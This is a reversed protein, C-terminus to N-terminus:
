AADAVGEADVATTTPASPSGPVLDTANPVHLLEHWDLNALTDPFKEVLKDRMQAADHILWFNDELLESRVVDIDLGREQLQRRPSTQRKEVRLADAQADQLPQIYPWKPSTWQHAYIDGNEAEVQAALKVLEPDGTRPDTWERVKWRYVPKLFHDILWRQNRKFGMRAQDVAGRWGSFNTDSADMTVLVLPLGLNVGILTLVLKAHQFFEANPVQPSFGTITEGPDAFVEMGPAIEDILRQAGGALTETESDGYSEPNNARPPGDAERNRIFAICSVIQQQVLKAFNIDEFMGLCDFIPAFATVGRTQTARKPDYVHFVAPWGQEDFAPYQVIDSVLRLSMNPDIDDRTFWYELRERTDSLLVGNVVNRKTGSPTRCRHAEVLELKGENTPLAFIDGDVFRTRLVIEQQDAFTMMGGLDCQQPDGAWAEFKKLLLENARENGTQPDPTMGNQVTNNVARDVMQGVIADNRDMDRAYEIMRLYDAENRYHYDASSGQSLLGNRRRRFRGVTAATYDSRIGDFAQAVNTKPSKM